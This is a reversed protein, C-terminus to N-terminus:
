IHELQFQEIPPVGLVPGLKKQNVKEMIEMYRKHYEDKQEQTLELPIVSDM